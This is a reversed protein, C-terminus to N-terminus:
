SGSRDWGRYWARSRLIFRSGHDACRKAMVSDRFLEASSAHSLDLAGLVRKWVLLDRDLGQRCSLPHVRARYYWDDGFHKNDCREAERILFGDPSLGRHGM